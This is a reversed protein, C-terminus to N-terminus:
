KSESVPVVQVLENSALFRTSLVVEIGTTSVEDSASLPIMEIDGSALIIFICPIM